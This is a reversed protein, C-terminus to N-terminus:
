RHLYQAENGMLTQQLNYQAMKAMEMGSQRMTALQQSDQFQAGGFVQMNAASNMRRNEQYLMESGKIIAGPAMRLLEMPFYLWGLAEGIAFRAAADVGSSIVGRGERRAAKYDGIAGIINVASGIMEMKSLKGLKSGGGSGGGLNGTPNGGNSFKHSQGSIPTNLIPNPGPVQTNYMPNVIPMKNTNPINPMNSGNTNIRPGWNNPNPTNTNPTNSGNANTRRPGWNNSNSNPNPTNTNGNTNTNVNPTNTNIGLAKNRMEIMEDVIDPDGDAILRIYEDTWTAPNNPDVGSPINANYKNNTNSNGTNRSGSQNTNSNTNTNSNANPWENINVNHFPSEEFNIRHKQAENMENILENYYDPDTDKLYEFDEATWTTPDNMDFKVTQAEEMENILENYYDPDTDKINEFDEATWTTPDNMDFKKKYVGGYEPAIIDDVTHITNVNEPEPDFNSRYNESEIEEPTGFVEETRRRQEEIEKERQAFEEEKQRRWAENAKDVAEQEEKTLPRGPGNNKNKNNNNKNKNKDKKIGLPDMNIVDGGFYDNIEKAAIKRAKQYSKNGKFKNYQGKVYKEYVDLTVISDSLQKYYEAPNDIKLKNNSDILQNFNTLEKNYKKLVDYDLKRTGNYKVLNNIEDNVIEGERTLFRSGGWQEDPGDYILQRNHKKDWYADGRQPEVDPPPSTSTETNVTTDTNTNRNPNPYEENTRNYWNHNAQTYTDYGEQSYNTGTRNKLEELEDAIPRINKNYFDEKLEEQLDNYIQRYGYLDNNLKGIREADELSITNDVKTYKGKYGGAIREVSGTEGIFIYDPQNQGPTSSMEKFVFRKGRDDIFNDGINPAEDFKGDMQLVHQKNNQQRRRYNWRKYAKEVDDSNFGIGIDNNKSMVIRMNKLFAEKGVELGAGVPLTKYATEFLDDLDRMKDIAAKFLDDWM